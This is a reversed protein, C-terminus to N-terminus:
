WHLASILHHPGLIAGMAPQVDRHGELTAHAMTHTGIPTM